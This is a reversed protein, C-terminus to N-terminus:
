GIGAATKRLGRAAKRGLSRAWRTKPETPTNAGRPRSPCSWAGGRTHGDVTWGAARLSHGSESSLTYTIIRAFGRRRAERAAHGYLMSSANHRLADPLTRDLCLRNVEVVERADIMRAVPRGVMVVGILSPGNWCAAGFRWGAPPKCHEHHAGVFAKADRFAVAEVRLRYNALLGPLSADVARLRQGTLGEFSMGRLRDAAAKPDANMEAVLMDHRAECCTEFSFEHGWCESIEEIVADGCWQCCSASPSMDLM